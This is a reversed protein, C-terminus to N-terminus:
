SGVFALPSSLILTGAFELRLMTLPVLKGEPLASHSSFPSLVFLRCSFIKEHHQLHNQKLLVNEMEKTENKM